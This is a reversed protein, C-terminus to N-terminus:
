DVHHAELLKFLAITAYTNAQVMRLLPDVHEGTQAHRELALGICYISENLYERAGSVGDVRSPEPKSIM